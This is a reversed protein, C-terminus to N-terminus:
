AADDTMELRLFGPYSLASVGPTVRGPLASSRARSAYM